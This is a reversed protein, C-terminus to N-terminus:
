NWEVQTSNKIQNLIAEYWLKYGEGSLHIKDKSYFKEPDKLFPDDNKSHFVDAVHVKNDTAIQKFHQLYTKSRHTYLWSLPPTFIPASGINGSTILVVIESRQKLETLLKNLNNKATALPTFYLIDNAGAQLVILDYKQSSHQKFLQLIDDLKAGSQSINAISASPYQDHLYGAVTQDSSEAGVGVATSDGLVLIQQSPSSPNHSFPTAKKVLQKSVAIRPLLLVINIAIASISILLLALIIKQLM